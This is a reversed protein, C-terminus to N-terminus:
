ILVNNQSKNKLCSFPKLKNFNYRRNVNNHIKFGRLQFDVKSM